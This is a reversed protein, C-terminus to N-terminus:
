WEALSGDDSRWIPNRWRHRTEHAKRVGDEDISVGLGPGEPILLFGDQPSLVAPESVFSMLDHGVNYHIGLSIEQLVVNPSCGALGSALLPEPQCISLGLQTRTYNMGAPMHLDVHTLPPPATGETTSVHFGFAITTSSGLRDPSFSARLTARETTASATAPLAACALAAILATLTRASM